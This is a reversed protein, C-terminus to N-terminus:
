SLQRYLYYDGVKELLIGCKNNPSTDIFVYNEFKYFINCDGEYFLKLNKLRNKWEAVDKIFFVNFKYSAYTPISTNYEIANM